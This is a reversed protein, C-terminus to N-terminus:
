KTGETEFANKTKQRPTFFGDKAHRNIYRILQNVEDELRNLKDEMEGLKEDKFDLRLTIENIQGKQREELLEIDKRIKGVFSTITVTIVICSVLTSVAIVLGPPFELWPDVHPTPEIVTFYKNM